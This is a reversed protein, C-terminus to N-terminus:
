LGRVIRLGALSAKDRASCVVVHAGLCLGVYRLAALAAKRRPLDQERLLDWRAGVVVVQRLLPLLLLRCALVPM